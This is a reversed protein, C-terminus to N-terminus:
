WNYRMGAKAGIGDTEEGFTLDLKAFVATQAGPNFFDVGASIVAWADEPDDAFNFSTNTSTLTAHHDGSLTGWLSGVIFPEMTTGTWVETSTGVRVGVRGRM